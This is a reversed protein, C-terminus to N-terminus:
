PAQELEKLSGMPGPHLLQIDKHRVKKPQLNPIEISLREDEEAKVLAPRGKYLVLSGTRPKDSRPM